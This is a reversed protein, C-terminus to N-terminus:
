AYAVIARSCRTRKARNQDNVVSSRPIGRQRIRRRIIM